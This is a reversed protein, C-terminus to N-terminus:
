RDSRISSRRVAGVIVYYWHGAPGSDNSIEQGCHCKVIAAFPDLHNLSHPQGSLIRRYYDAAHTKEKTVADEKERSGRRMTPFLGNWLTLGDGMEPQGAM